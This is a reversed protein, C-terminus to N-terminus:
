TKPYRTIKLNIISYIFLQLSFRLSCNINSEDLSSESKCSASACALFLNSRELAEMILLQAETVTLFRKEFESKNRCHFGQLDWYFCSSNEM